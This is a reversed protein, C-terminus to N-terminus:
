NALLQFWVAEWNTWRKLELRESICGLGSSPRFFPCLSCGVHCGTSPDDEADDRDRAPVGEAYLHRFRTAAVVLRERAYGSTIRPRGDPPGALRAPGHDRDTPCRNIVDFADDRQTSLGEIDIFVAAIGHPFVRAHFLDPDGLEVPLHHAGRARDRECM